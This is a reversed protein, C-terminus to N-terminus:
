KCKTFLLVQALKETQKQHLAPYVILTATHSDRLVLLLIIWVVLVM